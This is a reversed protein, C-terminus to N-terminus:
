VNKGLLRMASEYNQTLRACHAPTGRHHLFRKLSGAREVGEVLKQQENTLQAFRAENSLREDSLSEGTPNEGVSIGSQGRIIREQWEERAAIRADRRTISEDDALYPDDDKPSEGAKLGSGLSLTSAKRGDAARRLARVAAKRAATMAQRKTLSRGGRRGNHARLLELAALIADGLLDQRKEHGFDWGRSRYTYKLARKGILQALTGLTRADLTNIKHGGCTFRSLIPM